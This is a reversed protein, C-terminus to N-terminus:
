WWCGYGYWTWNYYHTGYRNDYPWGYVYSSGPYYYYNYGPYWWYYNYSPYYYYGYGPYYNYGHNYFPAVRFAQATDTVTPLASFTLVAILLLAIAFVKKMNTGKM